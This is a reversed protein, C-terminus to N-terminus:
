SAPVASVAGALGHRVWSVGGLMALLTGVSRNKSTGKLLLARAQFKRLTNPGVGEFRTKKKIIFAEPNIEALEAVTAIEGIMADRKSRGLESIQTLDDSDTIAKRCNSYWHCLKCGAASAPLTKEDGVLIRRAEALTQEYFQWLTEKNRVGQPQNFDYDVEDGHIDWVFARRDASQGIRGLVDTYLALQVAYHRKPKGDGEDDGGEEGAGSKIDGAIYGTGERRLLDPEGILDDHVVRGGYILPERRQMAALTERAKQEIPLASVDLFPLNLRQITEREFKSGREWLLQIFPSIQDRKAPDENSDLWIRHPCEVFAYLISATIPQM